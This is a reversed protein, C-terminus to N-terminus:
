HTLLISGIIGKWSSVNQMYQQTTLGEQSTEGRLGLIDITIVKLEIFYEVKKAVSGM